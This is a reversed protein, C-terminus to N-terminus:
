NKRDTGGTRSQSSGDGETAQGEYCKRDICRRDLCNGVACRDSSSGDFTVFGQKSRRSAPEVAREQLCPELDLALLVRGYSNLGRSPRHSQILWRLAEEEDLDHEICLITTLGKQRALQWRAYGDIIWRARTIVIPQRFAVDRLAALASLQAASVSCRHRVYSPHPQLEDLRCIALQCSINSQNGTPESNCDGAQSSSM